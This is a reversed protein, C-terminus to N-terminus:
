QAAPMTENKEPHNVARDVARDQVAQFDFKNGTLARWIESLIRYVDGADMEDRIQEPTLTGKDTLGDYILQPLYDETGLKLMAELTEYKTKLERVYKGTYKIPRAIGDGIDVTKPTLM